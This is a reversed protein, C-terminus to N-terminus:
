EFIEALFSTLDRWSRYTTKKNYNMGTEPSNAQPNTFAHGTHGYASINWDANRETLEKALAITQQPTALPDDWGHFILVSSKINGEHNMNPKDYVGHFTAIGKIDAGSRALDLVCKGGFCFGIAAIKNSDTLEFDKATQVALQIRNLLLTRNENLEGMLIRGEEPSAARRGNGYMDLAFGLYGMKALQIAKEEDFPSKGLYAHSVLVLPRKGQISDDWAFFGQFSEESNSYTIEKTQIM